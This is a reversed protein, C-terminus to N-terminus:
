KLEKIQKLTEAMIKLDNASVMSPDSSGTKPVLVAAAKEFSKMENTAICLADALGSLRAAAEVEILASRGLLYCAFGIASVALGLTTLTFLHTSLM